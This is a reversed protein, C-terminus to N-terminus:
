NVFDQALDQVATMLEQIATEMDSASMKLVETYEPMAPAADETRLILTMVGQLKVTQEEATIRDLSITIEKKEKRITGSIKCIEESDEKLQINFEGSKKDYTLKGSSDDPIKLKAEYTSANNTIVEYVVKEDDVSLSIEKVNKLNPGALLAIKSVTEGDEKTRMEFGVAQRTLKTIYITVELKAQADDLEDEIDDLEDELDDLADYFDDVADEADMGQVALAMTEGHKELYEKLQKDNQLYKLMSELFDAMQEDDMQINVANVKTNKDGFSLTETSKKVTSNKKITKLAEKYDRSTHKKKM